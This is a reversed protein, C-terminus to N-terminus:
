SHMLRWQSRHNVEAVTDIAVWRPLGLAIPLELKHCGNEVLLQPLLHRSQM